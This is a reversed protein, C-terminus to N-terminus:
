PLEPPEKWTLNAPHSPLIANGWHSRGHGQWSVLVVRPAYQPLPPVWFFLLLILMGVGM